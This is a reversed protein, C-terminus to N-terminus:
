NERYKLLRIRLCKMSRRQSRSSRGDPEDALYFFFAWQPDGEKEDGRCGRQPARRQAWSGGRQVIPAVTAAPSLATRSPCGGVRTCPLSQWCRGWSQTGSSLEADGFGGSQPAQERGAFLCTSIEASPVLDMSGNFLKILKSAVGPHCTQRQYM